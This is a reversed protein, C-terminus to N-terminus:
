SVFNPEGDRVAWHIHVFGPVIYHSTGTLDYVRHGGSQSVHLLLPEYLTVETGDPYEYVRYLESSIDMFQLGSVNIFNELALDIQEYVNGDLSEQPLSM